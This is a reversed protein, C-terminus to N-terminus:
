APRCVYCPRYGHARAEAESTWEVRHRASARRAHRCTPFCFIRTTDSGLFRVGRNALAELTEPEAGEAALLRQKAEGGGLSYQGLHGDSKVVRHCPILIPVPNHALASGVARVAKPHGIERAIWAYTRVEGRPIELAKRLVAQEFESLGSLDFAPAARRDGALLRRLKVELQQPVRETPFARRGTRARYAAEFAAASAARMVAAIGRAGRAVFVNGLPTALPFYEDGVGTETMVHALLGVPAAAAEATGLARCGGVLRRAEALAQRTQTTENM